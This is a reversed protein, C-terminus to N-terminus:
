QRSHCIESGDPGVSKITCPAMKIEAQMRDWERYVSQVDVHGSDVDQGLVLLEEYMKRIDKEKGPYLYIEIPMVREEQCRLWRTFWKDAGVSQDFEVQGRCFQNAAAQDSRGYKPGGASCGGVLGCILLLLVKFKRNECLM